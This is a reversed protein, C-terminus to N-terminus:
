APGPARKARKRGASGAANRPRAKTPRARKKEPRREEALESEAQLWHDLSRGDPRGEREWISYARECIDSHTSAKM